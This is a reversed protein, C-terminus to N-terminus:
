RVEATFVITENIYVNDIYASSALQIADDKPLAADM